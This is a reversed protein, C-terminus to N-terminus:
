GLPIRLDIITKTKHTQVNLTANATKLRTDLEQRQLINSLQQQDANTNDFEITYLMASKELRIHLRCDAAGTRVMNTIGSKLFWFIDQRQKMDLKLAEVNKDVLLDIQVGYRNSLAEAHERIREVAKHMSDNEPDINWLMDNMSNIM